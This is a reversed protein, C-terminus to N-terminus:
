RRAARRRPRAAGTRARTTEVPAADRVGASSIDQPVVAATRTACASSPRTPPKYLQWRQSRAACAEPIPEAPLIPLAQPLELLLSPGAAYNLGLCQCLEEIGRALTKCALASDQRVVNRARAWRRARPSWAEGREDRERALIIRAERAVQIKNHCASSNPRRVGERPGRAASSAARCKEQVLLEAWRAQPLEQPSADRRFLVAGSVMSRSAIM